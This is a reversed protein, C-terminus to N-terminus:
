WWRASQPPEDAKVRARHTRRADHAALTFHLGVVLSSIPVVLASGTVVKDPWTYFLLQLMGALEFFAGAVYCVKAYTAPNPEPGTLWRDLFAVRAGRADEPMLVGGGAVGAM